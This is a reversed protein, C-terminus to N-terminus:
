SCLRAELASSPSDSSGLVGEAHLESFEGELCEPSYTDVKHPLLGTSTPTRTWLSAIGLLVQMAQGLGRRATASARV